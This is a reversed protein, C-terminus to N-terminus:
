KKREARKLRRTRERLGATSPRVQPEDRLEGLTNDGAGMIAIMGSLSAFAVPLYVGEIVPKHKAALAKERRRARSGKM